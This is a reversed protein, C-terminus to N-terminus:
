LLWPDQILIWQSGGPSMHGSLDTSEAGSILLRHPLLSPKGLRRDQAPSLTHSKM